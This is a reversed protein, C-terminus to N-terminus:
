LPVKATVHVSLAGMQPFVTEGGTPRLITPPHVALFNMGSDRLLTAANRIQDVAQIVRLEGGLAQARTPIHFGHCGMQNEGQFSPRERNDDQGQSTAVQSPRVVLQGTPPRLRGGCFDRCTEAVERLVVVPMGRWFCRCPQSFDEAMAAVDFDRKSHGEFGIRLQGHDREVEQGARHWDSQHLHSLVSPNTPVGGIDVTCPTFSRFDTPPCGIQQHGCDSAGDRQIREVPRSQWQQPLSYRALRACRLDAVNNGM